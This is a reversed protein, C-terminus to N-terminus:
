ELTLPLIARETVGDRTVDVYIEWYGSMHFRMGEVHYLGDPGRTVRPITTMGHGHEPMDADVAVVVGETPRTRDAATAVHLTLTFTDNLRIPNPESICAVFYANEASATQM